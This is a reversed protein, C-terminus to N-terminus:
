HARDQAEKELKAWPPEITFRAKYVAHASSIRLLVTGVTYEGPGLGKGGVNSTQLSSSLNESELHLYTDKPLRTERNTQNTLKVAVEYMKDARFTRTGKILAEIRLGNDLTTPEFEVDFWGFNERLLSTFKGDRVGYAALITAPKDNSLANVLCLEKLGDDNVDLFSMGAFGERTSLWYSRWDLLKRDPGTLYLFTFTDGPISTIRPGRISVVEYTKGDYGRMTAKCLWRWNNRAYDLEVRSDRIEPGSEEMKSALEHFFEAYAADDELVVERISATPTCGALLVVLVVIPVRM